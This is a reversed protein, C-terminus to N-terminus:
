AARHLADFRRNAESYGMGDHDQVVEWEDGEVDPLYGHVYVTDRADDPTRGFVHVTRRGNSVAYVKRNHEDVMTHVNADRRINRKTTAM